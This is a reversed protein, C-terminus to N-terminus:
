KRQKKVDSPQVISGKNGFSQREYTIVAAIQQDNLQSSFSQMATGKKGNLVIDIHTKAPGNSIKSGKLAPFVPPQGSGDAKHCLACYQNYVNEGMKMLESQTMKVSETKEKSPTASKEKTDTQKEETPEPPPAQGTQQAVWTQFDKETKAEVVIPMFGHHLGCLEACQGRYIGPKDIRAWAEYIFGPIADRKVALAPVWWSHIVDASTVMFRIKKHIPVVLPKDVQLLYWKDKKDPGQIQTQPTSLKSDFRIGYDLYEYEWYWQHGIIKINVQSKSDDDMRMLVITAPIAMAVLILFPIIIWAIELKLNEHFTAAKHGVSKRHKILSYIMVGFVVIGIVVCIWFITMHLDYVDQSIPTVGKPMNYKSVPAAIGYLFSFCGIILLNIKLTLRM